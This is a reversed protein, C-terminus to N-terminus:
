CSGGGLLGLCVPLCALIGQKITPHENQQRVNWEKWASSLSYTNFGTWGRSFAIFTISELIISWILPNFLQIYSNQHNEGFNGAGWTNIVKIRLANQLMYCAWHDRRTVPGKKTQKMFDFRQEIETKHTHIFTTYENLVLNHILTRGVKTIMLFHWPM